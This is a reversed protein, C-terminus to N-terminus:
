GELVAMLTDGLQRDWKAARALKDGVIHQAEEQLKQDHEERARAEM